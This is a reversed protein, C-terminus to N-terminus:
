KVEVSEFRYSAAEPPPQEVLEFVM